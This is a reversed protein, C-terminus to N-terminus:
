PGNQKHVSPALNGEKGAGEGRVYVHLAIRRCPCDDDDEDDEDDELSAEAFGDRGSKIVRKNAPSSRM